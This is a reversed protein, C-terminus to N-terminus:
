GFRYEYYITDFVKEVSKVYNELNSIVFDIDKSKLLSHIKSINEIDEVFAYGEELYSDLCDEFTTCDVNEWEKLFEGIVSTLLKENTIILDIIEKKNEKSNIELDKLNKILKDLKLLNENLAM